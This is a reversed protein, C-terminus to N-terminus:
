GLRSSIQAGVGPQEFDELAVADYIDFDNVIQESIMYITFKLTVKTIQINAKLQEHVANM